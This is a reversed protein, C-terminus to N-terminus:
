LFRFRSACSSIEFLRALPPVREVFGATICAVRNPLRKSVIVHSSATRRVRRERLLEGRWSYCSRDLHLADDGTSVNHNRLYVTRATEFVTNRALPWKMRQQGPTVVPMPTTLTATTACCTHTGKRLFSHFDRIIEKGKILLRPISSQMLMAFVHM